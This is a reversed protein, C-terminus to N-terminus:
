QISLEGVGLMLRVQGQHAEALTMAKLTSPRTRARV